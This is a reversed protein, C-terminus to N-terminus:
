KDTKGLHTSSFITAKHQRITLHMQLSLCINHGGGASHENPWKSKEGGRNKAILYLMGEHEGM